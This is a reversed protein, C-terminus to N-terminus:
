NRPEHATNGAACCRRSRCRELSYLFTGYTTFRFTRYAQGDSRPGGLPRLQPSRSPFVFPSKSAQEQEWARLVECAYESLPVPEQVGALRCAVAHWALMSKKVLFASQQMGPLLDTGSDDGKLEAAVQPILDLLGLHDHARHSPGCDEQNTNQTERRHWTNRLLRSRTVLNHLDCTQHAHFCVCTPIQCDFVPAKLKCAGPCSNTHRDMGDLIDDGLIVAVAHESPAEFCASATMKPSSMRSPISLCM